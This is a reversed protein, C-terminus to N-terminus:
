KGIYSSYLFLKPKLKKLGLAMAYTSMDNPRAQIESFDTNKFNQEIDRATLNILCFLSHLLLVHQSSSSRKWLCLCLSNSNLCGNM